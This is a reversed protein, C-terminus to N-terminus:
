KPVNESRAFSTCTKERRPKKEEAKTQLSLFNKHQAVVEPLIHPVFFLSIGIRDITQAKRPFFNVKLATPFFLKLNSRPSTQNFTSSLSSLTQHSKFTQFIQPLNFVDISQFSTQYFIQLNSLGVCL